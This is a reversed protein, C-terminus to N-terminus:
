VPSPNQRQSLYQKTEPGYRCVCMADNTIVEFLFEAGRELREQLDQYTRVYIEKPEESPHHPVPLQSECGKYSV